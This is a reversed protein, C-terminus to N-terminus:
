CLFKFCILSLSMKSIFFVTDGQNEQSRVEAEIVHENYLVVGWVGIKGFGQPPLLDCHLLVLLVPPSQHSVQRLYAPEQM